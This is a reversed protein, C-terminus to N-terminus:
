ILSRKFIDKKARDPLTTLWRKPARFGLSGPWFPKDLQADVRLSTQLRVGGFCKDRFENM